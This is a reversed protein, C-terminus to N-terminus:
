VYEPVAVRLEESKDLIMLTHRMFWSTWYSSITIRIVINPSDALYEVLYDTFPVTRNDCVM